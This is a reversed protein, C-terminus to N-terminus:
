EVILFTVNALANSQIMDNLVAWENGEVDFKLIDIRPEQIEEIVTSLRQDNLFLKHDVDRRQNSEDVEALNIPYVRIQPDVDKTLDIWQNFYYVRCKHKQAMDKEFDLNNSAGKVTFSFVVCESAQLAPATCIHYLESDGGVQLLSCPVSQDVIMEHLRTVTTKVDAQNGEITNPVQNLFEFTASIGTHDIIYSEATCSCKKILEPQDPCHKIGQHSYGIDNFFHVKEKEVFMGLAISHVPADGWREFFFGGAHDLYEFYDQYPKSAFFKVSGIEFNSWFHHGNYLGSDSETFYNMWSGPAVKPGVKKMYNLTTEWLTPITDQYEHMTITFGYVLNNEEMYVFPDYEQHCFFEVESSDIRWYYDYKLIEPHKFLPGSFFRCMKLYTLKDGYMVKKKKKEELKLNVENMDLFDPVDWYEPALKVFTVPSSVQKMVSQKFTDSFEQDNFMLYPYNYRSNIHTEFSNLVKILEKEDENRALLLLVANAKKTPDTQPYKYDKWLSQPHRNRGIPGSFSANFNLPSSTRMQNWRPSIPKEDEVVIKLSKCSVNFLGTVSLLLFVGVFLFVALNWYVRMLPRARLEGVRLTFRFFSQM